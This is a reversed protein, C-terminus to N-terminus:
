TMSKKIITGVNGSIEIASAQSIDNECSACVTIGRLFYIFIHVKERVINVFRAQGLDDNHFKLLERLTRLESSIMSVQDRNKFLMTKGEKMKSFIHGGKDDTIIVYRMAGSMSLIEDVMKEYHNATYYEIITGTTADIKVLKNQKDILGLTVNVNWVNGDLTVERVVVDSHYQEFFKSAIM